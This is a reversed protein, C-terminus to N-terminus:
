ELPSLNVWGSALWEDSTLVEDPEKTSPINACSLLKWVLDNIQAHHSLSFAGSRGSLGHTGCIDVVLRLGVEMRITENDIRLNCGSIPLAYLWDSSHPVRFDLLRATMDTEVTKEIAAKNIHLKQVTYTLM